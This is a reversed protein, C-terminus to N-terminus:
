KIVKLRQPNKLAAREVYFVNTLFGKANPGRVQAAHCGLAMVQVETKKWRYFQGIILGDPKVQPMELGTHVAWSKRRHRVAESVM